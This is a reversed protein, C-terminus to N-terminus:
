KTIRRTNLSHDLIGILVVQTNTHSRAPLCSAIRLIFLIPTTSDFSLNLIANLSIHFSKEFIMTPRPIDTTASIITRAIVVYFNNEIKM